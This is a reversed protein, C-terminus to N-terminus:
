DYIPAGKVGESPPVPPGEELEPTMAWGAEGKSGGSVGEANRCILM